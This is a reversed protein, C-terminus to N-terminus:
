FQLGYWVVDLSAGRFMLGTFYSFARSRKQTSRKEERLIVHGVVLLALCFLVCFYLPHCAIHYRINFFPVDLVQSCKVNWLIIFLFFMNNSYTIFDVKGFIRLVNLYCNVLSTYDLMESITFINSSLMYSFCPMM